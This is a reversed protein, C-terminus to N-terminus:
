QHQGARHHRQARDHGHGDALQEADAPHGDRPQPRRAAHWQHRHCPRRAAARPSQVRGAADRTSATAVNSATRSSRSPACSTPSPQRTPPRWSGCGTAWCPDAPNAGTAAGRGVHRRGPIEQAAAPGRTEAGTSFRGTPTCRISSPAGRSRRASATCRRRRRTKASSPTGSPPTPTPSRASWCWRCRRPRSRTRTPPAPPPMRKASCTPMSSRPSTSPASAAPCDVTAAAGSRCRAMEAGLLAWGLQVLQWALLVVLVASVALPLLKQWGDTRAGQAASAIRSFRENVSQPLQM